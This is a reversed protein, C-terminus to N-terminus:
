VSVPAGGVKASELLAAILEVSRAAVDGSSNNETSRGAVLDIFRSPPTSCAYNGSGPTALLSEERGDHLLFEAREREVDLLLVGNTGFVRIDVQFKSDAPLTAAGALSGLAGNTFTVNASNYMDVGSNPTSVVGSVQQARLGTLWLALSVVHTLQGHAYGGGRRADQWTRMDPAALTPTWQSPVGGQGAFFEKTPSAMTGAVFEVDGIAGDDILEKARVIFDTYNWGYPVLLVVDQQNAATVLEWAQHPDLTMPKECMVHLGRDLAARAHEYHLHHPTSVLVADLDQSLLEDVDETAHAFGFQEKVVALLDPDPRCVSVLEVDDRGALLPFHNTTAWWGAGIAGVRVPRDTVSRM